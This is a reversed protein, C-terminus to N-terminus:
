MLFSGSRRVKLRPLGGTKAPILHLRQGERRRHAGEQISRRALGRGILAPGRVREQGCPKPSAQPSFHDPLLLVREALRQHIGNPGDGIKITVRKEGVWSGPGSEEEIAWQGATIAVLLAPVAAARIHSVARAPQFTHDFWRVTYVVCRERRSGVVCQKNYSWFLFPCANIKKRIRCFEANGAIKANTVQADPQGPM